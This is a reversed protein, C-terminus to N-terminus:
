RSHQQRIYSISDPFTNYDMEVYIDEVGATKASAFFQNWDIIGKGVAAQKKDPTWDSLHASIFRGPYKDFYDSAKYGLNIVETQFQMKVLSPDLQKLLADYILQGDLVAFEISHNHFGATLGARKLKEGAKNLTDAADMYDKLTATNPLWFSSLVVHKLGMQQSWEITKDLQDKLEGFTFHCSKCAIGTDNIRKHLDAPKVDALYGFGAQVYGAPSCMEVLKYGMGAITKLTGSFDKELMERVVWSQFGVPYGANSVFSPLAPLLCFSAAAKSSQQIFSRRNIASM